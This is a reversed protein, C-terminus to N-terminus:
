PLGIIKHIQLSLRWKPHNLCYNICMQLNTEYEEGAKPQLFLYNFPLHIYDEPELDKQPYVIKLEHGAKVKIKTRSKPSVCTWDIGQPLKLTGNTEIAIEFAFDHLTQILGENIQLGPEGGTLVVFPSPDIKVNKEPWFSFIHSALEQPKEFIGGGPGNTGVFDTDCFNCIAEQKDKHLGSWLNCDAFRCFVAPRGSQAGEGQLTYFVEKIKFSM